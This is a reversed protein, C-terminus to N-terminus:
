YFKHYKTTPLVLANNQCPICTPGLPMNYKSVINEAKEYLELLYELSPPTHWALSTEPIPRFVSLIPMVGLSAVKEIGKLISEIPELGVVFLTRTNIPDFKKVSYKLVELYRKRGILQMKGPTYKYALDEDWVELNYAIEDVGAEALLDIWSNDAPPAMHVYINLNYKEKIRRAIPIIYEAGRGDTNLTGGSLLIYRPNITKDNLVAELTEFIQKNNKAILDNNKNSKISCFKCAYSPNEALFCQNVIGINIRDFCFQAIKSMPIGDSTKKDYYVPRSFLTVELLEKSGRCLLFKEGQKRLILNSTRAFEENVPANVFIKNSLQLDLGGSAGSRVRQPIKFRKQENSLDMSPDIKIGSSLIEFKLKGISYIDEM